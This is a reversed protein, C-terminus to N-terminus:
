SMTCDHTLRDVGGGRGWAAVEVRRPFGEALLEEVHGASMADIQLFGPAVITYRHHNKM